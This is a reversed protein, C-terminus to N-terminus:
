LNTYYYHSPNTEIPATYAYYPAIYNYYTSSLYSYKYYAYTPAKYYYKKATYAYYAPISEYEKDYYPIYFGTSTGTLEMGYFRLYSNQTYIYAINGYITWADAYIYKGAWQTYYVNGYDHRHYYYYIWAIGVYSSIGYRSTYGDPTTTLLSWYRFENRDRSDTYQWSFGSSYKLSYNDGWDGWEHFYLKNM